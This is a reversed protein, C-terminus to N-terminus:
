AYEIIKDLLKQYSIGSGKAAKPLLSMPTLGPITNIELVIPTRNDKLIFDVRSFGSCGIAKHVRVALNQVTKTLQKSINAPVIEDSGGEIYKSDYDFYRGRKPVIEVPPLPIPNNNGLLGCTIEKGKIYEDVLATESYTWAIKLSKLLERDSGAISTGVSSGQNDPKVFYPPKGLLKKIKSLSESRTIYTYNPIPLHEHSMIKRFMLKNMGISSALVGSGTYRLGLLDLMGQVSGDEGFPGHMAIFVVDPKLPIGKINDFIQEETLSVEKTTGKFKIPNNLLNLSKISTLSWREGNKSIVVPFVNYKRKNLNNAVERGSLVSVEHESSRGGMLVMINKKRPM